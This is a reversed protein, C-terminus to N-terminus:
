SSNYDGLTLLNIPILKQDLSQAFENLTSKGIHNRAVPPINSPIHSSKHNHMNAAIAADNAIAPDTESTEPAGHPFKGHYEDSEHLEAFGDDMTAGKSQFLHANKDAAPTRSRVHDPTSMSPFKRIPTLHSKVHALREAIAPELRAHKAFGEGKGDTTSAATLHLKRQVIDNWAFSSKGFNGGAGKGGVAAEMMKGKGGSPGGEGGKQEGVRAEEGKAQGKGSKSAVGGGGGLGDSKGEAVDLVRLKNKKHYESLDWASAGAKKAEGVTTSWKIQEYKGHAATDHKHPNGVDLQIRSTDCKVWTVSAM